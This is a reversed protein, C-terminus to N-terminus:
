TTRVRRAAATWLADQAADAQDALARYTAYAEAGGSRRWAALARAASRAAARWALVHPDDDHRDGASPAELVLERTDDLDGLMEHLQHVTM